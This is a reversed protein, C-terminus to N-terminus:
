SWFSSSFFYINIFVLFCIFFVLKIRKYVESMYRAEIYPTVSEMLRDLNSVKVTSAPSVSRPVPLAAVMSSDGVDAPKEAETSSSSEAKVKTRGRRHLQREQQQQQQQQQLMQRQLMQQQQQQQMVIQQHRRVAPPNYFRDGDQRPPPAATYGGKSPM